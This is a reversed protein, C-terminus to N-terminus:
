TPVGAKQLAVKLLIWIGLVVVVPWLQAIWDM